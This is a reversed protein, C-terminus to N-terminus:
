KKEQISAEIQAMKEAAHKQALYQRGLELLQADRDDILRMGLRQAVVEVVRCDDVARCFAPAFAIPFRHQERAQSTYADLMRATIKGATLACMEEAIQDRSKPCKSIAETVLGRILADIDLSGRIM